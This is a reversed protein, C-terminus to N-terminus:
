YVVRWLSKIRNNEEVYKSFKYLYDNTFSKLDM